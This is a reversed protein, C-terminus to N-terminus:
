YTVLCTRNVYTELINKKVIGEFLIIGILLFVGSLEWFAIRSLMRNRVATCLIPPVKTHFLCHTIPIMGKPVWFLQWPLVLTSNYITQPFVHCQLCQYFLNATQRAKQSLYFINGTFVRLFLLIFYSMFCFGRQYTSTIESLYESFLSHQHRSLPDPSSLLIRERVWEYVKVLM